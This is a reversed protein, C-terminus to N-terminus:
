PPPPPPQPLPSSHQQSPESICVYGPMHRHSFTDNHRRHLWLYIILSSLRIYGVSDTNHRPIGFTINSYTTMYMHALTYIVGAKHPRSTPEATCVPNCARSFIHQCTLGKNSLPLETNQSHQSWLEVGILLLNVCLPKVCNKAPKSSNNLPGCGM